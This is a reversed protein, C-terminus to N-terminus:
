FGLTIALGIITATIGIVTAVQKLTPQPMKQKLELRNAEIGQELLDTRHIHYKLDTEVRALIESQTDQKENLTKLLDFIMDSRDM